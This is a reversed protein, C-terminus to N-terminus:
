TSTAWVVVTSISDSRMLFERSDAMEWSKRVGKLARTPSASDMDMVLGGRLGAWCSTAPAMRSSAKRM